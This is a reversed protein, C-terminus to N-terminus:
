KTKVKYTKSPKSYIRYTSTRRKGNEDIWTYKMKKYAYVHVYYYKKSKLKTLKLSSAGKKATKTKVNSEFRKNTSYEILFGDISKQHMKSFKKWKVTLAKKAAAPKLATPKKPMIIYNVGVMDSGDSAMYKDTNKLKVTFFHEGVTKFKPLKYTCESSALKAGSITELVVRPKIAKGTFSYTYFRSEVIEKTATVTQRFTISDFIGKDEDVEESYDFELEVPVGKELKINQSELDAGFWADKGDDSVFYGYTDSYNFVKETGDTYTVIFKNGKGFFAETAIEFREGVSVIPSFGDALELRASELVKYDPVDVYLKQPAVVGEYCITVEGKSGRPWTWKGFEQDDYFDPIISSYGDEDTGNEVFEYSGDGDEDEIFKCTYATTYGEAWVVTITDGELERYKDYIDDEDDDSDFLYNIKKDDYNVKGALNGGKHNYSVSVIDTNEEGIVNIKCSVTEYDDTYYNVYRENDGLALRGATEGSIWGPMEVSPDSKLYWGCYDGEFFYKYTEASGDSYKVVVEAGPVDVDYYETRVIGKVPEPSTYELGTPKKSAKPADMTEEAASAASGSGNDGAFAITPMFTLVMILSLLIAMVRNRKKM